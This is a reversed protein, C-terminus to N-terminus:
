LKSLDIANGMALYGASNPHLHDGSDYAPRMRRPNVPDRIVADLDTVADFAGSKRIWANVAERAAEGAADYNEWGGYPLITCAMVRIDRAHAQRALQELGSEIMAPDNQHPLQQIDNIGLLVIVDKVGAHSLVDRDFRGLADVGFGDLLIRNGGIGANLVGLQRNARLALLRRSLVDPWRANRGFLSGQGNTISDGFAVVAGGADTKAVDIGSIFYWSEYTYAFASAAPDATHDGDAYYNTQYAGPHYNSPGTPGPVYTSILLDSAPAVHVDVADSLAESFPPITIARRGGFTVDRLTGPTAQASGDRSLAVTTHAIVLPADGFANSLRIRLSDGGISIHVVQRLTQATFSSSEDVSMPAAEWTGIWREAAASPASLLVLVTLATSVFLAAFRNM